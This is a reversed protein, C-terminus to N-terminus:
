DKGVSKTEGNRTERIRLTFPDDNYCVESFFAFVSSNDNTFM